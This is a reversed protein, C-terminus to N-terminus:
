GRAWVSRSSRAADATRTMRHLIFLVTASPMNGHDALIARSHSLAEDPLGAAAAVAELIKPGGPHIAWGGIMEPTLEHRALWDRCWGGLHDRIHKPVGPSLTMSFGHDGIRWTMAEPCGPILFSATDRLRLSEGDGISENGVVAAAAGDAFLANAVLRGPDWGYAFHLSCLEVCCVLIRAAPEARAIDRAAGLANFAAHCGMFGIHVRRVAPSLGLSGILASDLGPAFFGTCSATILHTIARPRNASRGAGPQRRHALPPAEEAYRAMRLATTPGRDDGHAAPPYFAAPSNWASPWARRGTRM